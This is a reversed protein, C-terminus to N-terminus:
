DLPPLNSVREHGNPAAPMPVAVTAPPQAPTPTPIPVTQAIAAPSPRQGPMESAPVTKVVDIRLKQMLQLVPINLDVVPNVEELASKTIAIHGV